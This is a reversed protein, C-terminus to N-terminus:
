QITARTQTQEPVNTSSWDRDTQHANELLGVNDLYSEGNDLEEM